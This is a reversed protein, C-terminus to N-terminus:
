KKMQQRIKTIKKLRMELMHRHVAHEWTEDPRMGIIDDAISNASVRKAIPLLNFLDM